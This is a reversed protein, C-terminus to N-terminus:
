WFPYSVLFTVSTVLAAREPNLKCGCNLSNNILAVVYLIAKESIVFCSSSALWGGDTVTSKMRHAKM